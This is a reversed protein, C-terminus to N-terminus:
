PTECESTETFLIMLLILFTRRPESTHGLTPSSSPCWLFPLEKKIQISEKFAGHSCPSKHQAKLPFGNRYAFNPNRFSWFPGTQCFYHSMLSQNMGRIAALATNTFHFVLETVGWRLVLRLLNCRIAQFSSVKRSKKSAINASAESYKKVLNHVRSHFPGNTTWRKMRLVQWSRLLFDTHEQQILLPKCDLNLYKSKIRFITSFM